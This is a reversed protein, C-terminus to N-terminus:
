KKMLQTVADKVVKNTLLSSVMNGLDSKKNELVEMAAKKTETDAARFLKLLKQEQSSLKEGSTGETKATSSTKKGSSGTKATSTKKGSTGTKSASTKKGTGSTKSDSKASTVSELLSKQTVGTAKAIEKLQAQTLQLENREAKSIDAATLGKVKKSLQEQTMGAGTRAEKILEGTKKKAM